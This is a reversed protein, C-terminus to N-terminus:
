KHKYVTLVSDRGLPKSESLAKNILNKGDDSFRWSDTMVFDTPGDKTDATTVTTIALVNKDASWAVSTKIKGVDRTEVKVKGDFLFKYTTKFNGSSPYTRSFTISARNQSIHLIQDADMFHGGPGPTSKATDIIWTGSFNPFSQATLKPCYGTAFLFTILSVISKTM